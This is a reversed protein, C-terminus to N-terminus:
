KGWLLIFVSLSCTVLLLAISRLGTFVLLSGGCGTTLLSGESFFYFVFFFFSFSTLLHAFSCTVFVAILTLLVVSFTLVGVVSFVLIGRAILVGALLIGVVVLVVLVSFPLLKRGGTVSFTHRLSFFSSEFDIITSILDFSILFTSIILSLPLSSDVVSLTLITDTVSFRFLLSAMCLLSPGSAVSCFAIGDFFLASKSSGFFECFHLSCCCSFWCTALTSVIWVLILSPAALTVGVSLLASWTIFSFPLV